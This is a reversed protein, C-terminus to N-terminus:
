NGSLMEEALRNRAPLNPENAWNERCTPCENNGLRIKELCMDCVYHGKSCQFIKKPAKLSDFCVPCSYLNIKESAALIDELVTQFNESLTQIQQDKERLMETKPDNNNSEQHNKTSSKEDSDEPKGCTHLPKEHSKKFILFRQLHFM